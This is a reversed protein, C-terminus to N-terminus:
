ASSGTSSAYGHSLANHRAEFGLVRWGTLTMWGFAVVVFARQVLGGIAYLPDGPDSSLGIFVALLVLVVPATLATYLAHSGWGPVRRMTAASFPYSVIMALFAGLSLLNHLQGADTEAGGAPDTPFVGNAAVALGALVILVSAVRSHARFTRAFGIAFLAITAGFVYFNVTQLWGFPGLATESITQHRPDYGPQLLGTVTAIALFLLPGVAGVQTLLRGSHM